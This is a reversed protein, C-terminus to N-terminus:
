IFREIYICVIQAPKPRGSELEPLLKEWGAKVWPVKFYQDSSTELQKLTEKRIDEEIVKVVLSKEVQVYTYM